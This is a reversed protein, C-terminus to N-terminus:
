MKKTVWVAYKYKFIKYNDNSKDESNKEYIDFAINNKM